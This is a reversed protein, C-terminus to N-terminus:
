KRRFVSCHHRDCGHSLVASATQASLVTSVNRCVCSCTPICIPLSLVIPHSSSSALLHKFLCSAISCMSDNFLLYLVQYEAWTLTGTALETRGSPQGGQADSDRRRMKIKCTSHPIVLTTTSDSANRSTWAILDISNADKRKAHLTPSLWHPLPIQLKDM